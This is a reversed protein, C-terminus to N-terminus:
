ASPLLGIYRARKIEKVLKKQSKTSNGTIYRSLIKGKETLFDKLIEPKKYNIELKNARIKDIKKGFKSFDRGDKDGRERGDYANYFPKKQYSSGGEFSRGVRGTPKELGKGHYREKKISGLNQNFRKINDENANSHVNNLSPRAKTVNTNLGVGTLQVDPSKNVTPIQSESPESTSPTTNKHASVNGESSTVNVTPTQSESPESTSPTTNKHASVNGESSTVNVTPTQSESPESTSPTTNKHASVNGESSTVNVTPTQSESPESIPDAKVEDKSINTENEM